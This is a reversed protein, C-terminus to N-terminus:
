HKKAASLAVLRGIFYGTTVLVYPYKELHHIYGAESLAVIVVMLVVLFVADPILSKINM